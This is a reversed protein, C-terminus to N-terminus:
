IEPCRAEVVPYLMVKILHSFPTLPPPPWAAMWPCSRPLNWARPDWFRIWNDPKHGPGAGRQGGETLELLRSGTGQRLHHQCLFGMRNSLGLDLCLLCPCLGAEAQVCETGM